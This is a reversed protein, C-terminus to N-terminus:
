LVCYLFLGFALMAIVMTVILGYSNNSIGIVFLAFMVAFLLVVLIYVM